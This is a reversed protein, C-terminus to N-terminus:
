DYEHRILLVAFCASLVSTRRANCNAGAGRGTGQQAPQETDTGTGPNGSNPAGAPAIMFEQPDTGQWHADARRPNL